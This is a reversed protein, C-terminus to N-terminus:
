KQSAKRKVIQEVRYEAERRGGSNGDPCFDLGTPWEITLGNLKVKQFVEPNKLGDYLWGSESEVMPRFDLTFSRGDKFTIELIFDRVPKVSTVRNNLTM